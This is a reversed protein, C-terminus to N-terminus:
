QKNMRAKILDKCVQLGAHATNCITYSFFNSNENCLSQDPNIFVSVGDFNYLMHQFPVVELSAGIIIVTDKPKLNCLSNQLGVYIQQTGNKDYFHCENFFVVNPKVLDSYLKHNYETIDEAHTGKRKAFDWNRVMQNYVGHLHMVNQSGSGEHLLDINTTIIDVRGPYEKQVDTIFSHAESPKIDRLADFREKYFQHCLEYNKEFTTIDCVDTTKYNEWIADDGYRFTPIGVEASIGSGTIFLIKPEEM